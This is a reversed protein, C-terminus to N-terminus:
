LGWSDCSSYVGVFRENAFDWAREALLHPTNAFPERLDEFTMHEDPYWGSNEWEESPQLFHDVVRGRPTGKHRENVVVGFFITPSGMLIMTPTDYGSIVANRVQLQEEVTLKGIRSWEVALVRVEAGIDCGARGRCVFTPAFDFSKGVSAVEITGPLIEVEVWWRRLQTLWAAVLNGCAAEASYAQPPVGDFRPFVAAERREANKVFVGIDSETVNLLMRRGKGINCTRCAVILNGMENTGGKSVPIVHDVELREDSPKAGCYACRHGYHILAEMRQTPTLNERETKM